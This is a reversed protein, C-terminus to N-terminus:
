HGYIKLEWSNLIGTVGLKKDTVQLKWNGLSNEGWCFISGFTWDYNANTDGHPTALISNTGSPSILIIELDGRRNHQAKFVIEIHEIIINRQINISSTITQLDPLPLNVEMLQKILIQESPLNTWTKAKEIAM